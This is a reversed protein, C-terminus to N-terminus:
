GADKRRLRVTNIKMTSGSPSTVTIVVSQPVWRNPLRSDITSATFPSVDVRWRYGSFDGSLKGPTLHSRDPLGSEIARATQVLAVHRDLAGAGRVTTGIVSGISVLSMAVIALAILVEILTFGAIDQRSKLPM